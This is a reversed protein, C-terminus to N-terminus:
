PVYVRKSLCVQFFKCTGALLLRRKSTPTPWISFGSIKNFVRSELGRLLFYFEYLFLVSEGLEVEWAALLSSFRSYKPLRVGGELPGFGEM